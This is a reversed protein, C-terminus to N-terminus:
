SLTWRRTTCKRILLTASTTNHCFSPIDYLFFDLIRIERYRYNGSILLAQPLLINRLFNRVDGIGPSIVGEYLISVGPKKLFVSISLESESSSTPKSTQNTLHSKKPIYRQGNHQTRMHHQAAFAVCWTKYKIINISKYTRPPPTM